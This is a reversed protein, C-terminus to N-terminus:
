WGRWGAKRCRMSVVWLGADDIMDCALVGTGTGSLGTNSFGVADCVAVACSVGTGTGSLGTKSLGVADCVAVVAGGGTLAVGGCALEAAGCVLVVAGCDLAAVVGTTKGSPVRVAGFGGWDSVGVGTGCTETMGALEFPM